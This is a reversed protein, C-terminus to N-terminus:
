CNPLKILEGYKRKEEAEREELHTVLVSHNIQGAPTVNEVTIGKTKPWHDPSSM